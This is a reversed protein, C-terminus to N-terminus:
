IQSKPFTANKGDQSAPTPLMGFKGLRALGVSGDTGKQNIKRPMGTSTIRYTDNKGIIAGTTADSAVPTPLLGSAVVDQVRVGYRVGKSNERYYSGDESIKVDKSPGGQSTDPTPLLGFETEEIPLTSPQLQFYIRNYKTGKLKWTLKCRMSSWGEMGILLATFTKAWSGLQNLRQLRELCKRGSTASTKKGWDKAQKHTRSAPSDGQSSTSKDKTFLSTQKKLTKM